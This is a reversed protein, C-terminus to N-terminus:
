WTLRLRTPTPRPGQCPAPPAPPARGTGPSRARTVGHESSHCARASGLPPPLCGSLGRGPSASDGRKVHASRAARQGRRQERGSGWGPGESPRWWCRHAAPRRPGRPLPHLRLGAAASPPAGWRKAARRQAEGGRTGGRAGGGAPQGVLWASVMLTSTLRGGPAASKAPASRGALTCRGRLRSLLPRTPRPLGGVAPSQRPGGGWSLGGGGGGAGGGEGCAAGASLGTMEPTGAPPATV